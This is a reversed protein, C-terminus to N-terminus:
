LDRRMIAKVTGEGFWDPVAAVLRFRLRRYFALLSADNGDTYLWLHRYGAGRVGEVAVDMLARAIGQRRAEPLVAIDIVQPPELASVEGSPDFWFGIMGVVRGHLSATHYQTGRTREIAILQRVGDVADIGTSMHFFPLLDELDGTYREITPQTM